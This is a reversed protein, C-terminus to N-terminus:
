FSELISKLPKFFGSGCPTVRFSELRGYPAWLYWFRAEPGARRQRKPSVARAARGESVFFGAGSFTRSEM